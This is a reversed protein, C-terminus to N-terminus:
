VGQFLYKNSLYINIRLQEDLPLLIDAGHQYLWLVYPLSCINHFLPPLLSSTCASVDRFGLSFLLEADEPNTLYHYVSAGFFGGIDPRGRHIAGGRPLALTPDFPVRMASLSAVVGALNADLVSSSHLDYVESQTATFYRLAITKLNDRRRLLDFAYAERVHFSFSELGFVHNLTLSSCGARLLIQVSEACSCKPISSPIGPLRPCNKQRCILMSLLLPSIHQEDEWSLLDREAHQVLMRLFRPKGVALHLATQGIATVERMYAPNKLLLRLAKEEDDDLVAEFFSNVECAEALVSISALRWLLGASHLQSIGRLHSAKYDLISEVENGGSTLIEVMAQAGDNYGYDLITYLPSRGSVDHTMTPVRCAVLAKLLVLLGPIFQSRTGDRYSTGPVGDSDEIKRDYATEKILFVVKLVM